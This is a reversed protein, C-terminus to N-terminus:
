GESQEEDETPLLSVFSDVHKELLEVITSISEQTPDEYVGNPGRERVSLLDDNDPELGTNWRGIKRVEASVTLGDNKSQAFIAKELYSMKQGDVKLKGGGMRNFDTSM